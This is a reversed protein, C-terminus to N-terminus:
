EPDHGTAGTRGPLRIALADDEDYSVELTSPEEPPRSVVTQWAANQWLLRLRLDVPQAADAAELADCFRFRSAVHLDNDGRTSEVPVSVVVGSGRHVASLEVRATDLDARRGKARARLVGEFTLESAQDFRGFAAANERRALRRAHRPSRVELRTTELEVSALDVRHPKQAISAHLVSAWDGVFRETGHQEAKAIAAESMRRVLDPSRLLRVVREALQATDGDPVLFGDVGDTIQERPGYKIDYSVVPCGHSMSELTSLPYGEFASTMMFASSRSLAKRAHPDHGRLTISGSLERREIEEQLRSYRSGEGYIDLRAEPVAELVDAFATIAHVLRKQPELRAVVTVLFPDRDGQPQETPMDVPNPVVFLNNTHGRRQAIDERQRETLTVMADLGDVGSLAREYVENMPSDWRRPENVHVNHMLYFLHVRPLKVPALHPVLYRSDTFVFVREDDVTLERVWRRYWQGIAGFRGIVQGSGSVRTIARPWTAPDAFDFWPIRLFTSGDPRLYDYVTAGTTPREYTTRWPTGDTLQEEATLHPSLDELPAGADAEEDWDRERYHEYINLLPMGPLLLGRELCIRRRDAYDNAANLTLVTPDRGERALIRNRMLLARTQGGYDPSVDITCSLYRGPPLDPAPM